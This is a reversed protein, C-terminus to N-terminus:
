DSEKDLVALLAASKQKELRACYECGEDIHRHLLAIPSLDEAKIDALSIGRGFIRAVAEDRAKWLRSCEINIENGLM